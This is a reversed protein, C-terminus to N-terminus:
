QASPCFRGVHNLMDMVNMADTADLNFAKIASNLKLTADSVSDIGDGVNYYMASVEGLMTAQGLRNGLRAWETTGGIYDTIKTSMDASRRAAGTLYNAYSSESEATVKRLDTMATNVAVTNDYMERLKQTAEMFVTSVSMWNGFKAMADSWRDSFTKGATGAARARGELASLEKSFAQLAGNDMGESFRLKSLGTSVGSLTSAWTPDKMARSFNEQLWKVRELKSEITALYKIYQASYQSAAKGGKVASADLGEAKLKVKVTADTSAIDKKLDNKNVKTKVTVTPKVGEISAKFKKPNAAQVTAKVIPKTGQVSQKMKKTDATVQAVVKPKTGEISQKFKSANGMEVTAKVKPALREVSTKFEKIKGVLTVNAKANIAEVQSKFQKANGVKLTVDAKLPIGKVESQFAQKNGTKLEVPVVIKLESM